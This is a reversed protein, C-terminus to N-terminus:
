PSIRSSHSSPSSSRSVLFALGYLLGALLLMPSLGTIFSLTELMGGCLGGLLNLGLAGAPNKEAAFYIAFLIAACLIPLTSLTLFALLRLGFPLGLYSGLPIGYALVLFSILAAYLVPEPLRVGRAVLGNAILIVVLIGVIVYSFTLWTSGLLLAAKTVVHTELLMFAAGFLFYLLLRPERPIGGRALTLAGLVVVLGYLLLYVNPIRRSELHFFPWEDVLKEVRALEEESRLPV